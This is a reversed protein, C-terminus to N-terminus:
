ERGRRPQGLVRTSGERRVVHQAVGRHLRRRLSSRSTALGRVVRNVGTRRVPLWAGGWRYSAASCAAGSGSLGPALCAAAALAV